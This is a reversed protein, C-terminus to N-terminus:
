NMLLLVFLNDIQKISSFNVNSVSVVTDHAISFICNVFFAVKFNIELVMLWTLPHLYWISHHWYGVFDSFLTCFYVECLLVSILSNVVFKSFNLLFPFFVYFYSLSTTSQSRCFFVFNLLALVFENIVFAEGIENKM